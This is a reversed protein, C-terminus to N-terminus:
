HQTTSWTTLSEPDVHWRWKAYAREHKQHTVDWPTKATIRARRRQHVDRAFLTSGEEFEGAWWRRPPTKRNLPPEASRVPRLAPRTCDDSM